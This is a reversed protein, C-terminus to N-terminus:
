QEKPCGSRQHWKNWTSDNRLSGDVLVCVEASIAAQAANNPVTVAAYHRSQETAVVLRALRYSRTRGRPDKAGAATEGAASAVSRDSRRPRLMVIGM